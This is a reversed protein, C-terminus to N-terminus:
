AQCVLEPKVGRKFCLPLCAPDPSRVLFFLHSSALGTHCTRQAFVSRWSEPETDSVLALSPGAEKDLGSSSSLLVPWVAESQGFM